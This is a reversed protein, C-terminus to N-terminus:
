FDDPPPPLNDENAQENSVYKMVTSQDKLIIFVYAGYNIQNAGAGNVKDIVCVSVPEPTSTPNGFLLAYDGSADFVQVRSNDRDTVFIRGSGDVAMGQPQDFFGPEDTIDPDWETQGCQDPANGLVYDGAPHPVCSTANGWLAAKGRMEDMDDPDATVDLTDPEAHFRIVWNRGPDADAVLLSDQSDRALGTPMHVFRAASGDARALIGHPNLGSVADYAYRYVRGQEPSSLYLYTEAGPYQEIGVACTAMANCTGVEPVATEGLYTLDSTSYWSVRSDTEEFVFVLSEDENVCLATASTLGPVSSDLNYSQDRKVLGANSIVFLLNHAVTIQRPMTTDSYDAAIQYPSGSYLGTAEPIAIKEGCGALLWAAAPLLPLLVLGLLSRTRNLRINM